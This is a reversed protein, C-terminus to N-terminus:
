HRSGLLLESSVFLYLVLHARLQIIPPLYHFYPTGPVWLDLRYFYTNRSLVYHLHSTERLFTPFRRNLRPIIKLVTRFVCSFLACWKTFSSWIDIAVLHRILCRNLVLNPQSDAIGGSHIWFIRGNVSAQSVDSETCSIFNTVTSEMKVSKSYISTLTHNPTFSPSFTESISTVDSMSLTVRSMIGASRFINLLFDLAISINSVIVKRVLKDM